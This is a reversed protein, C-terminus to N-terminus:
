GHVECKKLAACLGFPKLNLHFTASAQFPDLSPDPSSGNVQVRGRLACRPLARKCWWCIRSLSTPGTFTNMTPHSRDTREIQNFWPTPAGIVFPQHEVEEPGEGIDWMAEQRDTEPPLELFM